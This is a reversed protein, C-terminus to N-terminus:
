IDEESDNKERPQCISKECILAFLDPYSKLLDKWESRPFFNRAREAIYKVSAEFLTPVTNLHSWILKDIANDINLQSIMNEVCEQKLSEIAYKDAVAYLSRGMEESEPGLFEGTYLYTLLSTFIDIELDDIKVIRTQAEQFSSQFMAAFVPSASSLIAVHAGITKKNKLHFQVDCLMQNKLLRSQNDKLSREGFTLSGFDMLFTLKLRLRETTNIKLNWSGTESDFKAPLALQKGDRVLWVHLLKEQHVQGLLVKSKSDTQNLCINLESVRKPKGPKPNEVTRKKPQCSIVCTKGLQSGCLTLIEQIPEGFIGFTDMNDLQWYTRFLGRRIEEIYVSSKVLQSLSYSSDSSSSTSM